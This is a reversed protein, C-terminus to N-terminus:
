AGSGAVHRALTARDRIIVRRRDFAILRDRKLKGLILTVTERTSGILVAIDAHTFPATVVQGDPHPRGWREAADLLFAALRAEVGNLLLAELRVELARHQHVIAAAMAARLPADLALRRRLDAIPIALAEVDDVVSATETAEAAFGLATEGVMQGPGRHGLPFSRDGRARELKIRGAGVLLFSRPPQGQVAVAFKRPLREVVGLELLASRSEGALGAFLSRSLIDQKSQAADAARADSLDMEM